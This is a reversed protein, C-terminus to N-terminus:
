KVTFAVTANLVGNFYVEVKYSGVPWEGKPADMYFNINYSGDEEIPLKSEDILDGSTYGEVQDVYWKSTVENGKVGNSLDGVVYITESPSFETAVTAGDKDKASRVNDLTPEGIAFNCALTSAVLAFVAFLISFKSKM